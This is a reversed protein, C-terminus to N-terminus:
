GNEMAVTLGQDGSFAGWPASVGLTAAILLESVLIVIVTGLAVFVDKNFGSGCPPKSQQGSVESESEGRVGILVGLYPRQPQASGIGILEMQTFLRQMSKVHTPSISLAEEYWRQAEEINGRLEAVQGRMYLVNHSMPFLNAAEQTCATAEAPKGIGIYVEAGKLGLEM